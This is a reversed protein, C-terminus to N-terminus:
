IRSPKLYWWTLHAELRPLGRASTCRSAECTTATLKWRALTYGARIQIGLDRVASGIAQACRVARAPGDFTALFGDGTSDVYRGGYRAIERRAREDHAALVGKWRGDGIETLRETSGVIDTFLVTTLVRDLGITPSEVGIFRRIEEAWMPLEDVEWADGPMKKLEARPMLSAVYEAEGSDRGGHALLLAPVQVAPLVASIDTELWMASLAKAVDPTCAHRAAKAMAAVAADSLVNGRSAQQQQFAHGYEATGWLALVREEVELEEPGNGWPYDPAWTCRAKPELWVISHVRAPNVAAFPSARASASPRVVANAYGGPILFPL